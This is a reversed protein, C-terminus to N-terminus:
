VGSDSAPQILMITEKSELGLPGGSIVHVCGAFLVVDLSEVPVGIILDDFGDNNVDGAAVSWGFYDTIESVEDNAIVSQRILRAGTTTLGQASGYVLTVAGQTTLYGPSGIALDAYGDADFDGSALSYGWANNVNGVGPIGDTDLTFLQDGSASLGSAGGFLINISQTGSSAVVLDAYGDGNFDNADLAAGFHGNLAPAGLVGSSKLHWYQNGSKALGSASGYIVNVAGAGALKNVKENPVGIALDAFGDGDFDGAMLASGFQDDTQASDKIGSSNQHWVQANSSTLGSASGYFVNVCGARQVGSVSEGPAGVALDDYGDGNFDGWTVAAGFRDNTQVSEPIGDSDQNWLQRDSTSIGANSGYVVHVFGSNAIGPVASENPMGVALDAYGDGNFDPGSHAAFVSTSLSCIFACPVALHAFCSGM